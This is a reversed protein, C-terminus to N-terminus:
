ASGDQRALTSGRPQGRQILLGQQRCNEAIAAAQLVAPRQSSSSRSWEKPAAAIAELFLMALSYTEEGTSSGAIWVRLPRDNGHTRVLEPIIHEALLEFAAADRFFSTVSILLDKALLEIEESDRRLVELYRDADEIAAIAMRREIRRLLTAEKYLAFTHSTRTRLLDIIEALRDQAGRPAATDRARGLYRQQSYKALTEAIAAVPLVLDVAGTRIASRPMGDFAAEDPDQV